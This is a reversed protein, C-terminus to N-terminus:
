EKNEQVKIKVVTEDVQIDKVAEDVTAFLPIDVKATDEDQTDLKVKLAM